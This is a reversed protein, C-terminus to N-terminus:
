DKRCYLLAVYPIRNDFTMIGAPQTTLPMAAPDPDPVRDWYKIAVPSAGVVITETKQEGVVGHISDAPGTDPGHADFYIQDAVLDGIAAGYFFENSGGQAGLAAYGPTVADYGVVTRKEAGAYATWGVPCRGLTFPMVAGSPLIVAPKRQFGIKVIDDFYGAGQRASTLITTAFINENVPAAIAHDCNQGDINGLNCAEMDTGDDNTQAGSNDRGHSVIVYHASDPPQVVSTADSDVVSIGGSDQFFRFKNTLQNTVAYTFRGGWGDGIYEDPLNLTRVPLDGVRVSLAYAAPSAAAPGSPGDIDVEGSPTYGAVSPAQETGPLDAPDDCHRIDSGGVAGANVSVGYNAQDVTLGRAAPCPYHGRTELFDQLRADIVQLRELTNRRETADIYKIWATGFTATMVGAILMVVCLEVLTFGAFGIKGPSTGAQVTQM